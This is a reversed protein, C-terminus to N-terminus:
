MGGQAGFVCVTDNIHATAATAPTENASLVMRLAM